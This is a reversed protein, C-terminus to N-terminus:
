VNPLEYKAKKGWAPCCGKQEVSDRGRLNASGPLPRNVAKDDPRRLGLAASAGVPLDELTRLRVTPHVSSDAGCGRSNNVDVHQCVLIM